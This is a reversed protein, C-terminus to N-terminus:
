LIYLLLTCHRRCSLQMGRRGDIVSMGLTSKHM